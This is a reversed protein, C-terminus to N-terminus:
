RSMIRAGRRRAKNLLIANRQAKARAAGFRRATRSLVAPPNDRLERGVESMIRKTKSPKRAM